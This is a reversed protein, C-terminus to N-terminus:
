YLDVPFTKANENLLFAELTVRNPLGPLVLVSPNESFDWVGRSGGGGAGNKSLVNNHIKQLAKLARKVIYLVCRTKIKRKLNKFFPAMNLDKQILNM